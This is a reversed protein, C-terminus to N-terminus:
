PDDRGKVRDLGILEDYFATNGLARVQDRARANRIDEIIRAMKPDPTVWWRYLAAMYASRNQGAYCLFAVRAQPGAGAVARLIQVTRATTLGFPSDPFALLNAGKVTAWRSQEWASQSAIFIHQLQHYGVFAEPKPLLASGVHVGPWVESISFERAM